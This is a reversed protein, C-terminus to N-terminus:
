RSRRAAAEDRLLIAKAAQEAGQRAGAARPDAALAKEFADRAAELRGAGLAAHGEALLSGAADRGFERRADALRSM